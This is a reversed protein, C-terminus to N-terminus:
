TNAPAGDQQFTFRRKNGVIKHTAAENTIKSKKLLPKVEKELIDEVYYEVNVTQGQPMIHIASLGSVSM